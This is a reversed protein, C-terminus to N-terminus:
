HKKIKKPYPHKHIQDMYNKVYEQMEQPVEDRTIDGGKDTHQVKTQSYDTKLKQNGQLAEVTIEGKVNESRKGIIEDLKGMAEQEMAEKAAKDGEENGAGSGKKKEGSDSQGGKAIAQGEAAQGSKEGKAEGSSADQGQGGSANQSPSKGNGQQAQQKSEQDSNQDGDKGSQADGKQFMEKIKQLANGVASAVKQGLSSNQNSGQQGEKPEGKQGEKNSGEQKTGESSNSQQGATEKDRQQDKASGASGSKDMNENRARAAADMQAQAEAEASSNKGKRDGVKDKSSKAKADERQKEQERLKEQIKKEIKQVLSYTYPIAKTQFKWDLGELHIFIISGVLFVAIALAATLAHPVKVPYYEKLNIQSALKEAREKTYIHSPEHHPIGQHVKEFIYVTSLYDTLSQERDIRQALKYLDLKDSFHICFESMVALGVLTILYWPLFAGLWYVLVFSMLASSIAMIARHLFQIIITRARVKHLLEHVTM